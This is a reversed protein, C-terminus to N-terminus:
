APIRSGQWDGDIREVLLTLNWVGLIPAQEIAPTLPGVKWEKIGDWLWWDAVEKTLRDPTGNRFVPFGALEDPVQVNGVIKVAGKRVAGVLPFFCTFSPLRRVLWDFDPTERLHDNWVRLLEGYQPHSHTFMAYSKGRATVIEVIDGARLKAM